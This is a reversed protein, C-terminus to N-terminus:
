RRRVPLDHREPGAEPDGAEVETLAKHLDILKRRREAYPKSILEAM